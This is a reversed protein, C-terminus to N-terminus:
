RAPAPTASGEGPHRAEAFVEVIRSAISFTDAFTINATVAVVIGREPWTVLSASGGIVYEDDHGVLQTPGGAISVTELDWGLGYGTEEDTPLRQSAQLMEVTAPQLLEGCSVALGFRVLDSPTSQFGGAGAFCSHDAAGALEPGYRTDANFRPYYFTVEGPIAHTASDPVTDLMGLPAFVQAHMFAFFPENAAAEVAASVLVWGYTSYRFETGPQFRLPDDAFRWLGEAARDCHSSPVYDGEGRYHRVGSVHSMLEGLTVPWRKEPFAPVYTKIPEDLRLRGQELLLGVAASTLAVSAGGIRFRMDPAVPVQKELDAWGFGEAWVLEGGAGVAVSLGPLNQEVLSARVLEQGQRVADAWGPLATSRQVSQVSQPDPHLPKSTAKLYGYLGLFTMGLLGIGVVIVVLLTHDSSKSVM